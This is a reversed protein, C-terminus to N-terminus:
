ALPCSGCRNGTLLGQLRGKKRAKDSCVNTSPGREGRMRKRHAVRQLPRRKRPKTVGLRRCVGEVLSPPAKELIPIPNHGTVVTPSSAPTPTAGLTPLQPPPIDPAQGSLHKIQSQSLLSVICLPPICMEQTTFRSLVKALSQFM